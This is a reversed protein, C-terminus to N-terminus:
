RWSYGFQELQQSTWVQLEGRAWNCLRYWRQECAGARNDRDRVCIQWKIYETVATLCLENVMPYGDEGYKRGYGRVVVVMGNPLAPKFGVYCEDVVFSEGECGRNQRCGTTVLGSKSSYGDYTLKVPGKKVWEILKFHHRIQNNEVRECIEHPVQTKKRSIYDLAEVVWQVLDDRLTQTYDPVGLKGFALRIPLLPSVYTPVPILGQSM